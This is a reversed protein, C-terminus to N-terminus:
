EPSHENRLLPAVRLAILEDEMAAEVADCEKQTLTGSSRLDVLTACLKKRTEELREEKQPDRDTM